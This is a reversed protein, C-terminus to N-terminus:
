SEDKKFDHRELDFKIGGDREMAYSIRARESGEGEIILKGNGEVLRMKARQRWWQDVKDPTTVWLGEQERLGALHDLLSRFVGGELRGKVYDPHIIFNILGHQALILDIQHKWLEISYDNLYNFLAYDQTTTTPLELIDGVFYPMVTCCGGRQAELHGVNPVSMDYSFQLADFWRQNRYLAAARFGKAGFQKGYANIKEVRGLFETRDRFLHGDHNLDHVAVEFGRQRISELYSATVEYRCEPVVAFCSKIGHGEELDMVESCYDRGVQTDVDHTMIACGPAGDPWFWIFPIRELRQARLSALLIQEFLQDVSSDVPWRPFTLKRWDSLYAKQLRKRFASPLLPRLAYYSDKLMSRFSSAGQYTGNAYLEFRLNDAIQGLDFPLYTIGDQVRVQSMLDCLHGNSKAAPKDGCLQGYYLGQDGFKFYGAENLLSGALGVNIHQELCQYYDTIYKNV